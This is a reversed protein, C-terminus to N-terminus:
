RSQPQTAPADRFPAGAEYLRLKAEIEVILARKRQQRALDVARRATQGAEAFRGAEAYAAALTDLTDPRNPTLDAARRALLVAKKGDRYEGDPNTARIWALGNLAEPYDPKLDIAKQFHGIAARVEGRGLLAAGLYDHAEAFDPRIELAMRCHAIAEEFRGRQALVNGLNGHAEAFDPKLEIAKLFKDIAEDIKGRGAQALGLKNYAEPYDPKIELARRYHVLAEDVQGSHALASGLEYHAGAYDPKIALAARFQPIAEVYKGHNALLNGLNAHAEAYDPRLEFARCYHKVAEALKGRRALLNALNNHAKAFDPKIEVAARLNDIAEDLNGRDALLNGLNNHATFNGDTCALAHRWLTEGDRWYAAQRWACVGLVVIAILAAAPLLGSRVRYIEKEGSGAGQERSRAKGGAGWVLALYLGIQPLYTYRDAMAQAGVQVVGIVPVLMGLYWLWGVFLYPLRRRSAVAVLSISLLLLSAGAIKWIPLDNEFSRHPYFVALGSPYFFQGLYVVYSVLANAIRASLPLQEISALAPRQALYTAACSAISLAFLPLKELILWLFCPAPLLSCPSLSNNGAPDCGPPETSGAPYGRPPERSMRGLPWYDLLLLILPLTVLMPKAMLGLAFLAAVLLYRSLSFRRRAYGVYAALTLMFFLGSLLDKREAVWAVSEVHLPHIAFLTAACASPWLDGTMRRLVLFLVIASAAHLLLNTAHHGGPHNLGYLQCDLMHSLWTLPHWNAAYFDTFAWAITRSTLGHLVNENDRVYMLDDYVFGHQLTQGFVLTVALLLFGCVLLLCPAPLWGSPVRCPTLFEAAEGGPVTQTAPYGRPPERSEAGQEGSEPQEESEM